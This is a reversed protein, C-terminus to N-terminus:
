PPASAPSSAHLFSRNSRRPRALWSVGRRGAQGARAKARRRKSARECNAAVTTQTRHQSAYLLMCSIVSQHLSRRSPLRFSRVSSSIEASASRVCPSPQDFSCSATYSSAGFIVTHSHSLARRAYSATRHVPVFPSLQAESCAAAASGRGM